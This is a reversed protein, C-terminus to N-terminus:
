AGAKRPARTTGRASKRSRAAARAKPSTNVPAPVGNTSAGDNRECALPRGAAFERRLHALVGAHGGAGAFAARQRTSGIGYGFVGEIERLASATGMREAIPIVLDVARRAFDPFNMLDGERGAILDCNIGFRAARWRNEQKVWHDLSLLTEGNDYQELLGMTVAQAFAAIVTVEEITSVSDCVGVEIAGEDPDPHIDWWIQHFGEIANAARLTNLFLQFEAWNIFSPPIGGTPINDILRIRCSALGTDVGRWYASNGAYALFLPVYGALANSVAIAKEGDPTAILVHLGCTLMRRIIWKMRLLLTEAEPGHTMEQDAWEAFPHTGMGVLALGRAEARASLVAITRELVDRAVGLTPCLGSEIRAICRFLGPSAHRTMDPQGQLLADVAPVPAGTTADIIFLEWRVGIAPREHGRYLPRGSGRSWPSSM